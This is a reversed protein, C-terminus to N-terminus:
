DPRDIQAKQLRDSYDVYVSKWETYFDFAGIGGERHGNGTAKSRWISSTGRRWHHTCQHLYHGRESGAHCSLATSMRPICAGFLAWLSRRQRDRHRAGLTAPFAVFSLASSRKRPLACKPISMPSCRRSWSFDTSTNARTLRNGGCLLRAGEEKGIEIYELETKMQRASIVPGMEVSEDLGNGIKLKSRRVLEEVFQTYVGKQLIIRSTATCRQGATGFAGWLAGELALELNADDLVIM